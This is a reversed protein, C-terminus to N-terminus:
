LHRFLQELCTWRKKDGDLWSSKGPPTECRLVAASASSGPWRRRWYVATAWSCEVPWLLQPSQLTQGVTGKLASLMDPCLSATNPCWSPCWQRWRPDSCQTGVSAGSLCLRWGQSLTVAASCLFMHNQKVLSGRWCQAVCIGGDLPLVERFRVSSDITRTNDKHREKVTSNNTATWDKLFQCQPASGAKGCGTLSPGGIWKLWVTQLQFASSDTCSFLWMPTFPSSNNLHKINMWYDSIFVVLRINESSDRTFPSWLIESCIDCMWRM